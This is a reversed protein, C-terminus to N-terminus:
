RQMRPTNRCSPSAVEESSGFFLRRKPIGIWEREPTSPREERPVSHSRIRAKASATDAMYSPVATNNRYSCSLRPTQSKSYLPAEQRPCRPSASHVQLHKLGPQYLKIPTQLSSYSSEEERLKLFNSMLRHSANDAQLVKIPNRQDCSYRRPREWQTEERWNLDGDSKESEEM